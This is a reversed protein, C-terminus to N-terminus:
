TFINKADPGLHYQMLDDMTQASCGIYTMIAAKQEDTLSRLYNVDVVSLDPKLSDPMAMVLDGVGNLMRWPQLFETKSKADAQAKETAAANPDTLWFKSKQYHLGLRKKMRDQFTHCNKGWALRWNWSGTFSRAFGDIQGLVRKKVVDYDEKDDVEMVPHFETDAAEGHHPDVAEGRNLQGDVRDIKLTEKISVSKSPWWGYSKDPMWQKGTTLVGTEIWWHGYHDVEEGDKMDVQQALDDAGVASLAKSALMRTIHTEKRKMRVFDLHKKVRKLHVEGADHNTVHTLEHTLLQQGGPSTPSYAGKSFFVDGGYTMAEAGAARTLTDAARDTHVRVGSLDVGAAAELSRRVTSRIPAGGHGRPAARGASLGASEALDAERESASGERSVMPDRDLMRAIAPNSALTAVDREDGVGPAAAPRQPPRVRERSRMKTGM